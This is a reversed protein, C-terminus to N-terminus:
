RVFEPAAPDSGYASGPELRPCEPITKMKACHKYDQDTRVQPSFSPTFACCGPCFMELRSRSSM